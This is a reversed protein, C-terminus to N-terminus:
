FPIKYKDALKKKADTMTNNIQSSLELRKSESAAIAKAREEQIQQFNNSSGANPNYMIGGRGWWGIGVSWTSDSHSWARSDIEKLDVPLGRLTAAIARIRKAVAFAADVAIPDVGNRSLQEIQGAAKERWTATKAVDPDDKKSGLGSLIAEVAKIYRQTAPGSPMGALDKTPDEPTGVGPFAFLSMVHRLDATTLPGSLTMSSAGYTAEWKEMGEIAVGQQELLELFLERTTKQHIRIDFQFDLKVTGTITEGVKASFTLGKVSALFTALRSLDAVKQNVIIPSVSLGMRLLNPDVSESLDVAVTLVDGASSDVAQQLYPALEPKKATKAHRIWRATSQRDAPFVAAIAPGPLMALYMNRPSLVVAMDAIRDTTGGERDALAQTTPFRTVRILGIQHDRTMNTLNVQSAVVVARGDPPIHGMGARYRRYVDDSWKESKALPSDYAAQVNLLVLTNTNPPVYPILDDFPSAASVPALPLLFALAVLVSRSM